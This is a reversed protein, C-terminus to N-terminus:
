ETNVKKERFLKSIEAAVAAGKGFMILGTTEKDIRHVVNYQLNSLKFVRDISIKVNSGDQVCLNYPKNMVIINKDEYIISNFISNQIDEFNNPRIYTQKIPNKFEIIPTRIRQNHKIKTNIKVRKGDLRIQGKRALKAVITFAMKPINRYFWRDLRLEHDAKNIKFIKIEM